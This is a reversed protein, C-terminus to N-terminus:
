NRWGGTIHDESYEFCLLVSILRGPTNDQPMASWDGAPSTAVASAQTPADATAKATIVPSGGTFTITVNDDSTYGDGPTTFTLARVEGSVVGATLTAASSLTVFTYAGVTPDFAATLAKSITVVHGAVSSVTTSSQVSSGSVSMGQVVGVATTLTITFDGSSGSIATKQIPAAAHSARPASVSVVPSSTYGAGPDTILLNTISKHGPGSITVANSTATYGGGGQDVAISHVGGGVISASVVAARGNLSADVPISVTATGVTSTANATINGVPADDITIAPPVLYGAGRDIIHVSVVIGAQITAQARAQRPNEGTPPAISVVPPTTYGSGGNTVIVSTLQAYGAGPKDVQVSTIAYGGAPAPLGMFPPGTGKAYGNPACEQFLAPTSGDFTFVGATFSTLDSVMALTVDMDYTTFTSGVDFPLLVQRSSRPDRMGSQAQTQAVWPLTICLQSQTPADASDVNDAKTISVRRLKMVQKKILSPLSIVQKNSTLVVQLVPM